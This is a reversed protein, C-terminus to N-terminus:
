YYRFAVLLAKKENSPFEVCDARDRGHSGDLRLGTGAQSTRAPPSLGDGRYKRCLRGRHWTGRMDQESGSAEDFPETRIVAPYSSRHPCRM